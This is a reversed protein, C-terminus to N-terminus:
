ADLRRSRAPGSSETSNRLSNRFSASSMFFTMSFSMSIPRTDFTVIDTFWAVIAFPRLYARAVPFQPICFSPDTPTFVPTDCTNDRRVNAEDSDWRRRVFVGIPRSPFSALGRWSCLEWQPMTHGASVGSPCAHPRTLFRASIAYTDTASDDSFTRNNRSSDAISDSSSSSGALMTLDVLTKTFPSQIPTCRSGTLKTDRSRSNRREPSNSGCIEMVCSTPSRSIWM